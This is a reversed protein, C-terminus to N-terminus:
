HAFGYQKAFDIERKNREQIVKKVPTKTFNHVPDSDNPASFNKRAAAANLTVIRKLTGYRQDSSDFNEVIKRLLWGYAYLLYCNMYDALPTKQPIEYKGRIEYTSIGDYLIDNIERHLGSYRDGCEHPSTINSNFRRLIGGLFGEYKAVNARWQIRATEDSTQKITNFSEHPNIFYEQQFITYANFYKMLAWGMYQSIEIDDEENRIIPLNNAVIQDLKEPKRSYIQKPTSTRLIQELKDQSKYVKTSIEKYNVTSLVGDLYWIESIPTTFLEYEYIANYSANLKEFIQKLNLRTM